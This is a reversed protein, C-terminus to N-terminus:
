SGRRRGRWALLAFAALGWLASNLVALTMEGGPLGMDRAVRLYFLPAGLVALALAAGARPQVGGLASGVVAGLAFGTLALHLVAVAVAAGIRRATM